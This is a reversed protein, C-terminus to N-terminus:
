ARRPVRACIFGGIRSARWRSRRHFPAEGLADGVDEAGVVRRMRELLLRLGIGGRGGAHGAHLRQHRDHEVMDGGAPQRELAEDIQGRGTRRADEADGALAADGDAVVGVERDDVQLPALRDGVGPDGRAGAPRGIVALRDGAPRDARDDAALRHHPFALQGAGRGSAGDAEELRKLGASLPLPASLERGPLFEWVGNPAIGVQYFNYGGAEKMDEYDGAYVIRFLEVLQRPNLKDIPYEAFYPWVYMEDPTGIGVHVYGANLVDLLIALIERGGEDGSESKLFAIPDDGTDNLSFQPPEGGAEIIPRLKEPDGTAAAEIIQERIRRVPTPLKSFDYEVVPLTADANGAREDPPMPPTPGAGPPTEDGPWGPIEPM